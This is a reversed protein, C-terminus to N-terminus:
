PQKAILELVNHRDGERGEDNILQEHDGVFDVRPVDDHNVGFCDREGDVDRRHQQQWGVKTRSRM